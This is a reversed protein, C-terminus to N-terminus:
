KRHHDLVRDLVRPVRDLPLADVLLSGYRIKRGARTGIFRRLHAPASRGRQAPQGQFRRFSALEGEAEIVGEVASPGLARVLEDELDAECVFFGLAEIAERTPASGLGLRHLSRAVYPAEAEDCLGALRLGLGRPGLAQAFKGINTIGGM